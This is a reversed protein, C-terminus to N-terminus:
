AAVAERKEARRQKAARKDCESLRMCYREGTWASYVMREATDRHGCRACAHKVTM